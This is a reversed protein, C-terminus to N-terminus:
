RQLRRMAGHGESVALDLAERLAEGIRGIGEATIVFPPSIQLSPGPIMRTLVRRDRLTKLVDQEASPRSAMLGSALQVAGLLGCHRVDGVAPHDRLGKLMDELVPELERVHAVLEEREIIDLNALAAACATAHGSYTYGHRFSITGDRRWFPEAVRPSVAVMGLPLYGSTLGKAGVMLDPQLGFRDSAFWTGLRGFGTIVEDAVFIVDYKRCIESVQNLYGPRPPIVGGAGIVPEVFFAAVRGPGVNLIAEEFAVADDHPVVVHEPDIPGFGEANAPIGALTTGFGHMGHYGQTRSVLIRRNPQGMASWYRRALKAATEIGDSGGSTLFIVADDIPVLSRLREALALAPPNAYDGFISYTPLQEMQRMVAAAIESRGYGVNAYWLSATADIYERGEEDYVCFGDGAVIVLEHSQVTGMDAFPHWLPTHFRSTQRSPV